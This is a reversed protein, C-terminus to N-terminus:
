KVVPALLAVQELLQKLHSGNDGAYKRARYIARAGEYADSREAHSLMRELSSLFMVTSGMDRAGNAEEEDEGGKKKEFLPKLMALRASPSCALFEKADIPSVGSRQPLELTQARSRLTSLLTHPAPHLLFFRSGAPPEELVKLLANQADPTMDPVVILFVRGEGFSRVYARERLARADDIGFKTYTRVFADSNGRVSTGDSELISILMELDSETGHVLFFNGGLKM